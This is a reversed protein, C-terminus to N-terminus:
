GQMRRKFAARYEITQWATITFYQGSFRPEISAAYDQREPSLAVLEWGQSGFHNLIETISGEGPMVGHTLCKQSDGHWDIRVTIHEWREM